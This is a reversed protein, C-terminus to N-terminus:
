RFYKFWRYLAYIGVGILGCIGLLAGWELSSKVHAVELSGPNTPLPTAEIVSPTATQTASVNQTAELTPVTTIQVSTYNRVLLQHIIIDKEQGDSYKVSVKIQYDGDSITSTDWAAITGNAVPQSISAIYFWTSDNGGDYAYSVAGSVFGDSSITGSITVNGKLVQGEQPSTIEVAPVIGSIPSLLFIPLLLSFLEKIMAVTLNLM